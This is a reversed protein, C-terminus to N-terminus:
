PNGLLAKVEAVTRPTGGAKYHIMAHCNPCVPVLDAIPDVEYADGVEAIPTTHHVHIFGDAFAGYVAGFDIGCVACRAGFHDICKQRAAKSREYVNVTKTTLAGEIIKSGPPPIAGAEDGGMAEDAANVGRYWAAWAGQVATADGAKLQNGSSFFADWNTGPAVRKLEEIELRDALDVVETWVVDVYNAIENEDQWHEDQYISSRALGRRVLGRHKGQALLVVHDGPDIGSTRQGTAWRDPVVGGQEVVTLAHHDGRPDSWLEPNWTLVFTPRGTTGLAVADVFTMPDIGAALGFLFRTRKTSNGGKTNAQKAVSKQEAKVQSVLADIDTARGLSIPQGLDLTREALPLKAAVTSDVTATRLVVGIRAARELLLRLGDLYDPNVAAEDSKKGGRAHLILAVESGEFFASFTARIARGEDDHITRTSLGDIVVFGRASLFPVVTAKGGSFENSTLPRGFGPDFRHAVGVIAKSDYHRGDHEILYKQAPGFGYRELFADRGLEDFEQMARVICQPDLDILAM